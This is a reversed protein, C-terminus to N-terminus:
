SELLLHELGYHLTTLARVKRCAFLLGPMFAVRDQTRHVLSLTEGTQGFIVEQEALVGSVRLAHIPVEHSLAGRAAPIIEHCPYSTHAKRSRAIMEATKIATGSPAEQKQPHHTEIIEVDSIYKAAIQAFHMMLIAGISFNPVILGGLKKEDCRAKLALYQEPLLGTTGIVPQSGAEIIDLTNQYVVSARTLDLVVEASTEEITRRLQDERGLTAVVEFDPEASLTAVALRGMKGYAGNVIIRCPEM